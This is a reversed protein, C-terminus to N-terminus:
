ARRHACTQSRRCAKRMGCVVPCNLFLLHIFPRIGVLGYMRNAYAAICTAAQKYATRCVHCASQISYKM